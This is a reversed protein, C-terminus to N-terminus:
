QDITVPRRRGNASSAGIRATTEANEPNDAIFRFMGAVNHRIEGGHQHNVTESNLGLAKALDSLARQSDV